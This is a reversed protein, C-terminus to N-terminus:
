SVYAADVALGTVVAAGGGAARAPPAAAPVVLSASQSSCRNTCAMAAAVVDAGVAEMGALAAAEAPRGLLTSTRKTGRGRAGGGTLPEYRAACTCISDVGRGDAPKAPPLPLLPPSLSVGAM